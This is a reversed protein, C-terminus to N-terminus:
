TCRRQRRDVEQRLSAVDPLDQREKWLGRGQRLLSLRDEQAEESLYQDIARRILTSQKQCTRLALRRLTQHQTETLYIQTRVV